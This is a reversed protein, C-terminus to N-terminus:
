DIDIKKELCVLQVNPIGNFVCPVIDAETYGLKKYMARARVNIANTDMRLYPCKHKRAYDEYYEVFTKGYGKRSLKPNVTLTHLVMVEEESANHNWKADFYEPVQIQNIIASAVIKDNDTMVFLDDRELAKLATEKRPYINRNWGISVINNEEEDHILSYIDNIADIDNLLAKRILM